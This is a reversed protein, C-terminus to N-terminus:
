TDTRGYCSCTFGANKGGLLLYDNFASFGDIIALTGV